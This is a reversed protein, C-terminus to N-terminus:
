GKGTNTGMGKNEGWRNGREKDQTGERRDRKGGMDTVERRHRDGRM